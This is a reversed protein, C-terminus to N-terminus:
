CSVDGKNKVDAGIVALCWRHKLCYYQEGDHWVSIGEHRPFAIRDGVRVDYPFDPGISVVEAWFACVQKAATDPIYIIDSLQKYKVKVILTDYVAKLGTM